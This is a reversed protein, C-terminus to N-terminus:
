LESELYHKDTPSLDCLEGSRFLKGSVVTKGANNQVNGLDRFNIM